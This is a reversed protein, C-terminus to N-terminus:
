PSMARVLRQAFETYSPFSVGPVQGDRYGSYCVASAADISFIDTYKM